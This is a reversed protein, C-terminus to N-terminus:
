CSDRGGSPTPCLLMSGGVGDNEDNRALVIELHALTGRAYRADVNLPAHREPAYPAVGIRGAIVAADVRRVRQKRPAEVKQM